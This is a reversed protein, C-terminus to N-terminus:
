GLRALLMGRSGGRPVHRRADDDEASRSPAAGGRGPRRRRGDLLEGCRRRPRRGRVGRRLRGGVSRWGPSSDALLVVAQERGANRLDVVLQVADAPSAPSAVVTDVAADVAEPSYRHWELNRVLHGAFPPLPEHGEGTVHLLTAMTGEQDDQPNHGRLRARPLLLVGAVAAPGIIVVFLAPMVGFILPFLIKVPVKQAAEEARQSRKLRIEDSQVRLVNAIPCATPTPRCWPRSSRSCTARRRDARGLGRLADMRGTGIQMEQLVRFFEAALPGDTNRAM